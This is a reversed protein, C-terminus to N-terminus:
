SLHHFPQASSRKSRSKAPVFLAEINWKYHNEIKGESTKVLYADDGFGGKTHGIIEWGRPNDGFGTTKPNKINLKQQPPFKFYGNNAYWSSDFTLKRALFVPLRAALRAATEQFLETLPASM